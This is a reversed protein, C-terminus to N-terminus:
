PRSARRSARSTPTGTTVGSSPRQGLWSLFAFSASITPLYAGWAKRGGRAGPRPLRGQDRDPRVPRAHLRQERRSVRRLRGRLLARLGRALVLDGPEGAPPEDRARVRAGGGAPGLDVRVRRRAGLAAARLVPEVAARRPRGRRRRAGPRLLPRQLRRRRSQVRGVAGGALLG